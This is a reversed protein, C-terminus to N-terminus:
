RSAVPRPARDVTASVLGVWGTCWAIFAALHGFEWRNRLAAYSAVLDEPSAHRADAWTANVPAVIGGPTAAVAVSGARDDPRLPRRAAGAM